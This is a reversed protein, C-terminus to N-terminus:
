PTPHPRDRSSRVARRAVRQYSLGLLAGVDRVMAEVGDLRRAQTYISGNVDAVEIAWWRGSRRCRATYTTVIAM